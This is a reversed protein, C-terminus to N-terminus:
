RTKLIGHVTAYFKIGAASLDDNIRIKIENAINLAKGVTGDNASWVAVWQRTTKGLAETSQVDHMFMIVDLNTKFVAPNGGNIYFEVGNELATLNLFKTDDFATGAEMYLTVAGIQLHKDEPPTYVFDVPTVSGDVGMDTSGLSDEFYAVVVQNVSVPTNKYTAM